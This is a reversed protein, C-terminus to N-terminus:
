SYRILMQQGLELAECPDLPLVATVSLNSQQRLRKTQPNHKRWYRRGRKRLISRICVAPIGIEYGGGLLYSISKM